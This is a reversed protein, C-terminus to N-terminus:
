KSGCDLEIYFNLIWGLVTYFGTRQAPAYNKPKVMEVFQEAFDEVM